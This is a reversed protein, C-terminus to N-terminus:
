LCKHRLPFLYLPFLSLLCSDVFLTQDEYEPAQLSTLSVTLSPLLGPCLSLLTPGYPGDMRSIPFAM